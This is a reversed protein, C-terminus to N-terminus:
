YSQGGTVPFNVGSIYESQDSLVFRILPVIDQVTANRKLPHNVASLEVVKEPIDSLFTTDVMSPSIANVTIGKDAYESALCKMLGMLAYKTVIYSSLAKPPVGICVSSLLFVIRGKRRKVMEPIYEQLIRIISKLQLDIETQYANWKQDKFRAFGFKSAPLHVIQDPAGCIATVEAMLKVLGAEDALDATVVVMPSQIEARLTALKEMGRHCHAVLLTKGDDLSRLLEQGISSSAGLILVSKRNQKM